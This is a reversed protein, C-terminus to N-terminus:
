RAPSIPASPPALTAQITLVLLREAEEPRLRGATVEDAAAHMLSYATTVLWRKPLDARFAGFRRGRDLLTEVRRLVRDHGTRIREPPLERQAAAFINRQQSVIRWSARVLGELADAPDGTMDTRELLDDADSTARTVVAEVLDARTKFHGYLTMRGVGAAAAIDNISAEPDAALCSLGADIIAAV